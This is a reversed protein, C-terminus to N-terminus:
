AYYMHVCVCVRACAHVSFTCLFVLLNEVAPYSPLSTRRLSYLHRHRLAVRHHFHDRFHCLFVVYM